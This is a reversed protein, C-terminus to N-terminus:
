NSNKNNNHNNFNKETKLAIKFFNDSFKQFTTSVDYLQIKEVYKLFFILEMVEISCISLIQNWFLRKQIVTRGGGGPGTCGKPNFKKKNVM